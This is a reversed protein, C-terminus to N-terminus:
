RLNKVCRTFADGRDFEHKFLGFSAAGPSLVIDEGSRAIDMAVTVAEQMSTTQHVLSRAPRPLANLLKETATGPLTVFSRRRKALTIAFPKMDLDKDTGGVIFVGRRFVHLAALAGDPSTAATDNIFRHGRWTRVIEQRYPVGAFSQVTQRIIALPIDLARAAAVAALLNDTNHEGAPGFDSRRCLRTLTRGRREVVWGHIVTYGSQSAPLMRGYWVKKAPTVTAARRCYPDNAHLVAVDTASQGRFLNYKIDAYKKMTGHRNLHDVKLNTMVAVHMARNPVPLRELQYSSLELVALTAASSKPLLDLMAVERVNGSIITDRHWRKIIAGLLLTTTTKGRTGTVGILTGPFDTVFLSAENYIPRGLKKAFRIEPATEPVGPNQIVAQAWRVGAEDHKGLVRQFSISRLRRLTPALDAVTKMDTVRITAGISALWRVTAEGGGHLGLGVLLVRRGKLHAASTTLRSSKVNRNYWFFV